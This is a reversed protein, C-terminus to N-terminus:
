SAIRPMNARRELEAVSFSHEAAPFAGQRVEDVFASVAERGRQAFQEYRKLFRPQFRDTLGLLDPLVLVQGDCHPGAGIGITPIDIAATVDRAAELPIGELVISFAGAEELARADDILRQRADDDRGQMRHGGMAHISQPTLGIHGMVPIGASVIRRVSEAVEVGGELKISEARGKKLLKGANELAQRPDLQYSMFPMDGVLHARQIGRKVARCHYIIDDLEVELTSDLGQVVTGVSDGVLIADVGADDAMRGFLADYAAVMVIPRGSNKRARLAPVSIKKQAM